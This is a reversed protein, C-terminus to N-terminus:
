REARVAAALAAAAAAVDATTRGARYVSTGTGLGAAGAALWQRASPADVGGVAIIRVDPPLVARVAGIFGMGISAAPFLKLWRAGARIARLAETPTAFGPVPELGCGLAARIVSPRTDPAVIFSGGADAVGVAEDPTLVTGAGVAARGELAAALKGVSDFAAPSNLPVEIALIGAAVLTEGIAVCERAQVGRLIAVVPMAALAQELKM